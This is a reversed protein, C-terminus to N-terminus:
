ALAYAASVDGTVYGAIELTLFLGEYGPIIGVWPPHLEITSCFSGLSVVLMQVPLQRLQQALAEILDVRTKNWESGMVVGM